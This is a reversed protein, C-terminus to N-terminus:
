QDFVLRIGKCELRTVFFSKSVSIIITDDILGEIAKRSVWVDLGNSQFKVFEKGFYEEMKAPRIDPTYFKKTKGCGCGASTRSPIMRIVLCNTASKKLYERVGSEIVIEM